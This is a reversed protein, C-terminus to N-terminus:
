NSYAIGSRENANEKLTAEKANVYRNNLSEDLSAGVILKLKRRM